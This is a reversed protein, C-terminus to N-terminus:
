ISGVSLPLLSRFAPPWSESKEVGISPLTCLHRGMSVAFDISSAELRQAIHDLETSHFDVLRLAAPTCANM